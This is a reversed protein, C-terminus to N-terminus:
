QRSRSNLLGKEGVRLPFFIGWSYTSAYVYVHVCPKRSAKAEFINEHFTRALLFYILKQTGSPGGGCRPRRRVPGWRCAFIPFFWGLFKSCSYNISGSGTTFNVVSLVPRTYSNIIILQHQQSITEDFSCVQVTCSCCRLVASCM